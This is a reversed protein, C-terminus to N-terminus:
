AFESVSQWRELPKRTERKLDLLLLINRTNDLHEEMRNNAKRTSCVSPQSLNLGATQRCNHIQIKSNTVGLSKWIKRLPMLIM